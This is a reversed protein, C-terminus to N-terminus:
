WRSWACMEVSKGGNVLLPFEILLVASLVGVMPRWACMEVGKTGNELLAFAILLVASLM